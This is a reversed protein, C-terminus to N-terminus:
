NRQLYYHFLNLKSIDAVHDIEFNELNILALTPYEDKLDMYLDTTFDLELERLVKEAERRLEDGFLYVGRGHITDMEFIVYRKGEEKQQGLFSILLYKNIIEKLGVATDAKLYKTNELVNEESSKCLYIVGNDDENFWGFDTLYGLRKILDRTEPKVNKVSIWPALQIVGAIIMKMVADAQEDLNYPLFPDLDELGLTKVMDSIRNKKFSEYSVINKKDVTILGHMEKFGNELLVQESVSETGFIIKFLKRRTMKRGEKYLNVMLVINQTLMIDSKGLKTLRNRSM